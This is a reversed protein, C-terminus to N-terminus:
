STTKEKGSKYKKIRGALGPAFRLGKLNDKVWVTYEPDIEFVTNWSYGMGKYKPLNCLHNKACFLTKSM